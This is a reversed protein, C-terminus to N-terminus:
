GADMVDQFGQRDCVELDTRPFVFVTGERVKCATLSPVSTSKGPMTASATPDSLTGNKWLPICVDTLAVVSPVANPDDTGLTTLRVTPAHKSNTSNGAYCTVDTHFSPVSSHPSRPTVAVKKAYSGTCAALLPICLLACGVAVGYRSLSGGIACRHVLRHLAPWATRMGRDTRNRRVSARGVHRIEGIEEM